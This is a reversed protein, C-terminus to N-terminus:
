KAPLVLPYGAAYVAGNLDDCAVFKCGNAGSCSAIKHHHLWLTAGNHVAYNVACNIGAAQAGTYALASMAVALCLSLRIRRM